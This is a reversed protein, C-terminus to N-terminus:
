PAVRSTLVHKANALGYLLAAPMGREIREVNGLSKLFKQALTSQPRARMLRMMITDGYDLVDANLRYALISLVSQDHRHDEFDPHNPYGLENPQDTLTRPDTSAQLWADVFAVAEPQNRWVSTTAQVVPRGYLSPEDGGLLRLADRKTWQSIPGLHPITPGVVFGRGNTQVRKALATPLPTVRYSDDRGADSYVLVEDAALTPLVERLYYPKWLWYGAGRPQSVIGRHKAAFATSLFDAPGRAELRHYGARRADECLRSRFREFDPTAYTLLVFRTM